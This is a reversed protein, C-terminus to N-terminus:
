ATEGKLADPNVQELMVPLVVDLSGSLRMLQGTLRDDNTLEDLTISGLETLGLPELVLAMLENHATKEEEISDALAAKRTLERFRTRDALLTEVARKFLVAEEPETM